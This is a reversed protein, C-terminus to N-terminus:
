HYYCTQSSMTNWLLHISIVSDHNNDLFTRHFSMYFPAVSRGRRRGAREGSGKTHGGWSIISNNNQNFHHPHCRCDYHHNIHQFQQYLVRIDLVLLLLVAVAHAHLSAHSHVDEDRHVHMGALACSKVCTLVYMHINVHSNTLVMCTYKHSCMYPCLQTCM